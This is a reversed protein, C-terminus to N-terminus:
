IELELNNGLALEWRNELTHEPTFYKKLDWAPVGMFIRASEYYM